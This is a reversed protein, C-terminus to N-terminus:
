GSHPRSPHNQNGHARARTQGMGGFGPIGLRIKNMHTLPNSLLIKRPKRPGFLMSLPTREVFPMSGPVVIKTEVIIGKCVLASACDRSGSDKLNLAHAHGQSVYGPVALTQNEITDPTTDKDTYVKSLM